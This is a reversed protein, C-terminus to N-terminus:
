LFASEEVKSNSAPDDPLNDTKEKISNIATNDPATTNAGDTGRMDTNTTTTDVLTVRAVTDTAPNFDNLGNILDIVPTLDVSGDKWDDKNLYSDLWAHVETETNKDKFDAANFAARIEAPTPDNLSSIATLVPTLDAVSDTTPIADVSTQLNDVSAQSALNSVDAKFADENNGTTFETYVETATIDNLNSIDTQIQTIGANDPAIDSIDLEDNDKVYLVGSGYFKTATEFSIFYAGDAVGTLSFDATYYARSGVETMTIDSGLQTGDPNFGKAILTLGIDNFPDLQINLENAM